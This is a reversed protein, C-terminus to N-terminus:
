YVLYKFEMMIRGFGVNGSNMGVYIMNEMM